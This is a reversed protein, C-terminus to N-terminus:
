LFPLLGFALRVLQSVLFDAVLQESYHALGADEGGTVFVKGDAPFGGLPRYDHVLAFGNSLSRFILPWLHVRIFCFQKDTNM